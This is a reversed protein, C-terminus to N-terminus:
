CGYVVVPYARERQGRDGADRERRSSIYPATYQACMTSFRDDQPRLAPLDPHGVADHDHIVLGVDTDEDSGQKLIFPIADEGEPV